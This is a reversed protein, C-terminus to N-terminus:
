RRDDDEEPKRRVRVKLKDGNELEVYFSFTAPYQAILGKFHKDNKIPFGDVSVLVDGIRVDAKDAASGEEIDEVRVGIVQDANNYEESVKKFGIDERDILFFDPITLECEPSGELGRCAYLNVPGPLKLSASLWMDGKKAPEIAGDPGPAAPGGGTLMAMPGGGTDALAANDYGPWERELGALPPRLELDIKKCSPNTEPDYCAMLFDGVVPVRVRLWGAQSDETVHLFDLQTAPVFDPLPVFECEDVRSLDACGWLMDGRIPIHNIVWGGGEGDTAFVEFSSSIGVKAQAASVLLCLTVVVASIGTLRYM